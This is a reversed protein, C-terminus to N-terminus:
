RRTARPAAPAAIDSRRGLTRGRHDPASSAKRGVATLLETVATHLRHRETDPDAEVPPSLEGTRESLHPLLRTLEGGGAGLASRLEDPEITRTLRDLAQVFPGYPTHVVEDCAGYLVLVGASAADVAFERVLRSKGSGSEGGILVM